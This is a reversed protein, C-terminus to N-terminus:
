ASGTPLRQLVASAVKTHLLGLLVASHRKPRSLAGV